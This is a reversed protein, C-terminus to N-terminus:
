LCGLLQTSMGCGVTSGCVSIKGNFVEETESDVHQAAVLICPRGSLARVPTERGQSSM